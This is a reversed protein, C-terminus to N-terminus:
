VRDMVDNIREIASVGVLGGFVRLREDPPMSVFKGLGWTRGSEPRGGAVVGEQPHREPRKLMGLIVQAAMANMGAKRLFLEWLTEEQIIRILEEEGSVSPTTM